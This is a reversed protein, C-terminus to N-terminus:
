VWRRPPLRMGSLRTRQVNDIEGRYVSEWTEALKAEGDILCYESATGAAVLRESSILSSFESEDDLGKKLPAYGYIVTIEAKDCVLSKTTLSYKVSKGDSIVSVIKVPRLKFDAFAYIGNESSMVEETTLPIYSRALEDEVSNFCYLLTEIVETEEATFPSTETEEDNEGEAANPSLLKRSIEERGVFRLATAIIDKVKM